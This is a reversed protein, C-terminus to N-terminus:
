EEKIWAIDHAYAENGGHQTKTKSEELGYEKMIRFVQILVAFTVSLPPNYCARSGGQNTAGVHFLEAILVCLERSCSVCKKLAVWVYGLKLCCRAWSSGFFHLLLRAPFGLCQKRVRKALIKSSGRVNNKSSRQM